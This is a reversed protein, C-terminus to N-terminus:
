SARPTGPRARRRKHCCPSGETPRSWPVRRGRRNSPACRGRGCSPATIAACVYTDSGREGSRPEQKQLRIPYSTSPGHDFLQRQKTRRLRLLSGHLMGARGLLGLGLRRWLGNGGVRAHDEVNGGTCQGLRKGVANWLGKGVLSLNPRRDQDVKAVTGGRAIDDVNRGLKAVQLTVIGEIGRTDLRDLSDEALWEKGCLGGTDCAPHTALVDCRKGLAQAQKQGRAAARTHDLAVVARPRNLAGGDLRDLVAPDHERGLTEVIRRGLSSDALTLEDLCELAPRDRRAVEVQKIVTHRRGDLREFFAADHHHLLSTRPTSAALLGRQGRCAALRRDCKGVALLLRERLNLAGTKVGVAVHDKDVAHGAGAFGLNVKGGDLTHQCSATRGAYEDGLNRQRGLSDAAEARTKALRDRDEM